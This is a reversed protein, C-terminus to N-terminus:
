DIELDTLLPTVTPSNGLTRKYGVVRARGSLGGPFARMPYADGGIQFGRVDGLQFDIGPRTTLGPKLTMALSRTGTGVQALKRAAHEDLTEVQSISTSPTFRLEFKPRTDAAVTAHSSEPRTDNTATSVAMVDNAGSGDTYDEVFSVDIADGPMSWTADPALDARPTSGLRDRVILVPCYARRDDHLCAEWGVMWEPGNEVGALESMVSFLTKDNADLYTRDRTFASAEIDYEFPLGDDAGYTAVLTEIIACQDEDAFTEDGVYRRRLYSEVTGMTLAVSDKIGRTRTSILGGWTPVDDELLVLYAGGPTTALDWEPHTADTLPLVASATAYGMMVQEITGVELAPFDAIVEGTLASCGVWSVAM